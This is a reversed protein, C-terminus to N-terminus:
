RVQEKYEARQPGQILALVTSLRLVHRHVGDVVVSQQAPRGCSDAAVEGRPIRRHGEFEDFALGVSRDAAALVLWRPALAQPLGILAALDFVSVLAGSCGAVGRLVGPSGPLETVATDLRIAAVDAISIVHPTDGIRIGLVDEYDDVTDTPAGEFAADFEQRLRRASTDTSM